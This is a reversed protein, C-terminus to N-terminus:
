NGRVKKKLKEANAAIKAAAKKARETFSLKKGNADCGCAWAPAGFSLACCVALLVAARRDM